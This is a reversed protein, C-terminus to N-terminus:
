TRPAGAREVATAASRIRLAAVVEVVGLVIFWVGAVLVLVQLSPFPYALMVLGALVAIVGSFGVWGRSPLSPDSIAAVAEAVGRFIFGIGVWIALLLISDALSRFCLVALVVSAAGSLFLLIRGGASSVPLAFASVVQAIGTVLLYAGFVAAAVVLSVTPWVLILIGLIATLIGAALASKWLHPLPSSDILTQM